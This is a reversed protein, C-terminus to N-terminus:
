PLSEYVCVTEEATRQWTMSCVTERGASGIRAALVPDSLVSALRSGLGLHDGASFVFGNRGDELIESVGNKNTTIVPVGAALAEMTSNAFPDYRTPLVFVDSAAYQHAVDSSQGAWVIQGGIGCEIALREYEERNGSGVVLIKVRENNELTGVSKVLTDLGKRKFGTGVY